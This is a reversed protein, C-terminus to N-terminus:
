WKNYDIQSPCDRSNYYWFIVAPQMTADFGEAATSPTTINSSFDGASLTFSGIQPGNSGTLTVTGSTFEGGSSTVNLKGYDPVSIDGGSFSNDGLALTVLVEECCRDRYYNFKATDGTLTIVDEDTAAHELDATGDWNASAGDYQVM